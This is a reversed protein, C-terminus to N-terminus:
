HRLDEEGCSSSTYSYLPASRALEMSMRLAGSLAGMTAWPIAACANRVGSVHRISYRMRHARHAELTGVLLCTYAFFDDRDCPLGDCVANLLLRVRATSFGRLQCRVRELTVLKVHM